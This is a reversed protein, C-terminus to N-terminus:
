YVAASTRVGPSSPSLNATWTWRFPKAMTQNFFDIFREIQQQLKEEEEALLRSVIERKEEDTEVTLQKRFHEINLRAIAKDM